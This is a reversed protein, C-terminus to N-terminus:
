RWKGDQKGRRYGKNWADSFCLLWGALFGVLFLFVGATFIVWAVM